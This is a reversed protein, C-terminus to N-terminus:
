EGGGILSLKDFGQVEKEHLPEFSLGGNVSRTLKAASLSLALPNQIIVAM